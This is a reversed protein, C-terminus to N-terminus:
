AARVGRRLRWILYAEAAIPVLLLLVFLVLPWSYVRDGGCYTPGGAFTRHCVSGETNSALFVFLVPGFVGGPLLLTGIVKDRSSRANSMWLLLVGILWGVLPVVLGGFPLLILAAIERWTTRVRRVGFRERAEAAIEAPDGLRELVNRMATEDDPPLDAAAETVHARIEDLVERRGARPIEVLESELRALYDSVLRDTASM